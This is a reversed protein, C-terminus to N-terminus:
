QWERIIKLDSYFVKEGKLEQYKERGKGLIVVMDNKKALKLAAKLGKSRDSFLKYSNNNKFGAIIDNNINDINENRPNDPTIFCKNAFLEAIQAMKPRKYKDREGGAGFVVYLQSSKM